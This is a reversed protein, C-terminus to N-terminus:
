YGIIDRHARMVQRGFPRDEDARAATRELGADDLEGHFPQAAGQSQGIARRRMCQPMRERGMKEGAAAVQARDLFQEAMGRERGRLDIGPDVGLPQEFDITGRMRTGSMIRDCRSAGQAAWLTRAMTSYDTLSLIMLACSLM